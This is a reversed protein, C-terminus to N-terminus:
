RTSTSRQSEYMGAPSDRFSSMSWDWLEPEPEPSGRSTLLDLCARICAPHLTLLLRTKM